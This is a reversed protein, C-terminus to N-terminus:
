GGPLALRRWPLGADGLDLSAPRSRAGTPPPPPPRTRGALRMQHYTIPGAGVAQSLLTHFLLGRSRSRRRNFRFVWEDFYGQLHARSVSGQLTGMVWRKVLSFVRHTAPLVVHAPLGSAAISTGRHEYRDRTAAPYASWGDTIVRAGPEVAGDLFAALSEGSADPIIGLRVRGFSHEDLEVAAAFLVKGLAGRGPIGPEPGGLYSEDVEVDGRLRDRGPRVMVSRYRHLMAWATQYSGLEMERQLQTASIGVKSNVLHWAAAFWVTLPTRTSHFITGATASVRRDCGACRWRLDAARWGKRQGCHPCVFGNPWRLWDLFDLCKADESFWGRLQAYSRPYDQGATAAM